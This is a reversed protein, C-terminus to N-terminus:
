RVAGGRVWGWKAPTTATAAAIQILVWIRATTGDPRKYGGGNQTRGGVYVRGIVTKGVQVGSSYSPQSRIGRVEVAKWSVQETDRFVVVNIGKSSTRAQCARYFLAASWWQYGARVGPDKVLIEGHDVNGAATGALECMCSMSPRDVWRYDYWGITHNGTFTNTARKTHVTAGADISADGSAGSDALQKMDANAIGYRAAAHVGYHDISTEVAEGYSLGGCWGHGSASRFSAGTPHLRDLTSRAVNCASASDVCHDWQCTSGDGQDIPEGRAPTTGAAVTM